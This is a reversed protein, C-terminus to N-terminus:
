PTSPSTELNFKTGFLGALLTMASDNGGGNDGFDLIVGDYESKRAEQIVDQVFNLDRFLFIKVILWKKGDRSLIGMFGFNPDPISDFDIAYPGKISKFKWEQIQPPFILEENPNTFWTKEPKSWSLEAKRVQDDSKNKVEITIKDNPKYCNIKGWNCRRQVTMSKALRNIHDEPSESSVEDRTKLVYSKIPMGNYSIVEDGVRLNLNKAVNAIDSIFFRAKSFKM